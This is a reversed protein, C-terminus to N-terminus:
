LGLANLLTSFRQHKQRLAAVGFCGLLVLAILEVALARDPLFGGLFRGCIQLLPRHLVFILLASQGLTALFADIDLFTEMRTLILAIELSIVFRAAPQLFEGALEHGHVSFQSVVLVCVASFVIAPWAKQPLAERKMMNGFAFGWLGYLIFYLMEMWSFSKGFPNAFISSTRASHLVLRMIVDFSFGLITAAMLFHKPKVRMAARIMAPAMVLILATPLLFASISWPENFLLVRLVYDQSATGHVGSSALKFILNSVFAVTGIQFARRMLKPSRTADKLGPGFNFVAAVTFGTLMIFSTTAWGPPRLYQMPDNQGIAAITLSHAIIMWTILMGRAADVIVLRKQRPSDLAPAATLFVDILPVSKSLWAPMKGSQGTRDAAVKNNIALRQKSRWIDTTGM